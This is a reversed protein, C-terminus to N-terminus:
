SIDKIRKLVAATIEDVLKTHSAMNKSGFVGISKEVEQRFGERQANLVEIIDPDNDNILDKMKALARDASRGYIHMKNLGARFAQRLDEDPVGLVM